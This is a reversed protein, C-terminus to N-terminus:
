YFIVRFPASRSILVSYVVIRSNDITSHTNYSLRKKSLENIEDFHNTKKMRKGCIVRDVTHRQTLYRIIM